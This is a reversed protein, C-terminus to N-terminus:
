ETDLISKGVFFWLPRYHGDLEVIQNALASAQDDGMTAATARVSGEDATPQHATLTEMIAGFAARSQADVFDDPQLTMLGARYAYVLREHLPAPSTALADVAAALKERVYDESPVV